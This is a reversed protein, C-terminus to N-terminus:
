ANPPPSVTEPKPLTQFTRNQVPEVFFLANPVVVLVQDRTRISTARFGIHEVRGVHEKVQIEDGILFPREFLLYLGAFFSKLIDQIALSLALGAVGFTALIAALGVGAIGLVWVGGVALVGGYVLRGALLRANVDARTRGVARDFSARIRLAVWWWVIASIIAVAARFLWLNTLSGYSALITDWSV